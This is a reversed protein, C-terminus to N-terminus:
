ESTGPALLSAQEFFKIKSEHAKIELSFMVNQQFIFSCTGRDVRPYRHPIICALPSAIEVREENAELRWESHALPIETAFGSGAPPV